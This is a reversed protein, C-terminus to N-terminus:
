GQAERFQQGDETVAQLYDQSIRANIYSVCPSCSSPNRTHIDLPTNFDSDSSVLCRSTGSAMRKINNLRQIMAHHCLFLGLPM